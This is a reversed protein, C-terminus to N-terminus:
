GGKTRSDSGEEGVIRVLKDDNEGFYGLKKM